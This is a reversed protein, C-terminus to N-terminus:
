EETLDRDETRRREIGDEITDMDEGTDNRRDTERDERRKVESREM